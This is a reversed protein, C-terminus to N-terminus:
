SNQITNLLRENISDIIVIVKGPDQVISSSPKLELVEGKSDTLDSNGIYNKKSDNHIRDLNSLM